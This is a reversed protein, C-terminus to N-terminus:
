SVFIGSAIAAAGVAVLDDPRLPVDSYARSALGVSLPTVDVTGGRVGGVAEGLARPLALLSEPV